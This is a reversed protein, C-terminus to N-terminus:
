SLIRALVRECQRCQNKVDLHVYVEYFNDTLPLALLADFRLHFKLVNLSAIVPPYGFIRVKRKIDSLVLYSASLDM